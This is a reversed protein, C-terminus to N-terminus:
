EKSSSKTDLNLLPASGDPVVITGGSERIADIWKQQLVKETLSKAVIDNAKAQGEAEAVAAKARAEAEVIQAQASIETARLNAEAKAQEQQAVEVAKISEEVEATFSINQLNVVTVSVGYQNLRDNLRELMLDQAEGRKEGRFKVPSYPSPVDRVVALIGPEIVQKTLVSTTVSQGSVQGGTYDPSLNQGGAYTVSQSFLDWRSLSQWPAKLSFGPETNQGAITGGANILVSAQGVSQTYVSGGALCVLAILGTVLSSLYSPKGHSKAVAPKGKADKRKPDKSAAIDDLRIAFPGSAPEAEKSKATTPVWRKRKAATNIILGVTILTFLIFLVFWIM